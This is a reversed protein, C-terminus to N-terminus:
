TSRAPKPKLSATDVLGVRYGDSKENADVLLEYKMAVGNRGGRVGVYELEVLRELHRRVQM